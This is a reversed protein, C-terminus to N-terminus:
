VKTRDFVLQWLRKIVITGRNGDGALGHGLPSHVEAVGAAIGNLAVDVAALDKVATTALGPDRDVARTQWRWTV